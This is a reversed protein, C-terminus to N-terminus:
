EIHVSYIIAESSRIYLKEAKKGDIDLTYTVEPNSGQYNKSEALITNGDCISLQTSPKGNDFMKVTVKHMEPLNSVDAILVGSINIGPFNSNGNTGFSDTGSPSCAAINGGQPGQWTYTYSVGGIMASSALPISAGAFNCSIPLTTAPNNGNNNNANNSGSNDPPVDKDKNCSFSYCLMTSAILCIAMIKKNM